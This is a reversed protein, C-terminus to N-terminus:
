EAPEELMTTNLVKPTEEFVKVAEETIDESLVPRLITEDEVEHEAPEELETTNLVKLIEELVKAAEKNIGEALM